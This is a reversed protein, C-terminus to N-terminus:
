EAGGAGKVAAAKALLLELQQVLHQFVEVMELSFERGSIQCDCYYAGIARSGMHIPAFLFHGGKVFPLLTDPVVAPRKTPDGINIVMTGQEMSRSLSDAMQRRITFHFSEAALPSELGLASRGLVRDTRPAVAAFVVRDVGMGAHIAKLVVGFMASLRGKSALEALERFSALLLNSDVGPAPPDEFVLESPPFLSEQPSEIAFFSADHEPTHDPLPIASACTENGYLLVTQRAERAVRLLGAGTATPESRRRRALKAVFSRMDSESWGKEALRAIDWGKLVCEAAPTNGHGRFIELLLPSLKWDEVLAHTLQTLSFGLVAKEALADTQGPKLVTDLAVGEDQSFCWFVLSGVQRLFAAIFIEEARPDKLTQALAKAQMAAHMSRGLDALVRDQRNGNLLAEMLSLSLCISRVTDVGLVMVARSVTSTPKGTPNYYAMNSLRLVRVTLAPDQLILRSLQETGTTPDNAAATVDAATRRFAPMNEEGIKKLWKTLSMPM